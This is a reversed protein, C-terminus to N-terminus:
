ITNDVAIYEVMLNRGEVYGLEHLRQELGAWQTRQRPLIQATGIRLAPAAPQAGARQPRLQSLALTGGLMQIFERRRMTGAVMMQGERVFLM